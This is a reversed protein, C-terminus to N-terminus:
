IMKTFWFPKSIFIPPKITAEHNNIKKLATLCWLLLGVKLIKEAVDNHDAKRTIEQSFWL